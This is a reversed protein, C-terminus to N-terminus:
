EPKNSRQVIYDCVVKEFRTQAPQFAIVYILLPIIFGMLIAIIIFLVKVTNEPLAGKVDMVNKNITIHAATTDDKQVEIVKKGILSIKYNPFDDRLDTILNEKDINEIFTFRM